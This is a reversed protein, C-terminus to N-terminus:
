NETEIKLHIILISFKISISVRCFRWKKLIYLCLLGIGVWYWKNGLLLLKYPGLVVLYWGNGYWVSGTGGLM